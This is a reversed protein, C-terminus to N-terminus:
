FRVIAEGYVGSSGPQAYIEAYYPKGKKASFSTNRNQYPYAILSAATSDPWFSIKRKAYGQVYYNPGGCEVTLRGTSKNAKISTSTDSSKGPYIHAVTSAAYAGMSFLLALTIAIITVLGIKKNKKAVM